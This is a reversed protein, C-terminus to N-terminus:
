ALVNFVKTDLIDAANTYIIFLLMLLFIVVCYCVIIFINEGISFPVVVTDCPV